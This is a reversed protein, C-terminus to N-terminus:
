CNYYSESGAYGDEMVQIIVGVSDDLQLHEVLEAYLSNSFQEVSMGSLDYGKITTFLNNHGIPGEEETIPLTEAISLRIIERVAFFELQRDMNGDNNTQIKVTLIFRHHHKNSLFNPACSWCHFGDFQDNVVIFTRQNM